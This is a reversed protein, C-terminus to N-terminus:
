KEFPFDVSYVNTLGVDLKIWFGFGPYIIQGFGPTAHIPVYHQPDRGTHDFTYVIDSTYSSLNATDNMPYYIGGFNPSFFINGVHFPTPFPNGVLLKQVFLKGGIGGGNDFKNVKRFETPRSVSHNTPAVKATVGRQLSTDISVNHDADTIIWYGKGPTMEDTTENMRIMSSSKGSFDGEQKYMVWNEAGTGEYDGLTPGFINQITSGPTLCSVSITKWQDKKLEWVINGCADFERYAMVPTNINYDYFDYRLGTNVAGDIDTYEKHPGLAPDNILTDDAWAIFGNIQSVASNDIPCNKTGNASSELLGEKCDTIGDADADKELYDPNADGDADPPTLGSAPSYATNRGQSDVAPPLASKVFTGLAQGEVNDPIGDNDSDLDFHNLIGDADTDVDGFFNIDGIEQLNHQTGTSGTFAVYALEDGLIDSIGGGYGSAINFTFSNSVERISYSLTQATANWSLNLTHWQGDKLTGSSNFNVVQSLAGKTGLGAGPSKESSWDEVSLRIQTHSDIAIAEEQPNGSGNHNVHTDFEIAVGNAIGPGAIGTEASGLAGMAGGRVGIANIGRPDNHFVIAFGDAGNIDNSARLQMTVDFNTRFDLRNKSNLAGVKDQADPTMTIRNPNAMNYEADGVKNFNKKLDSTDISREISDLIGDNDNDLDFHDFVGDHDNDNDPFTLTIKIEGIGVESEYHGDWPDNPNPILRIRADARRMAASIGPSAAHLGNHDIYGINEYTSGNWMQIYLKDRSNFPSLKLDLLEVTMNSAGEADFFRELYTSSNVTIGNKNKDFFLRDQSKAIYIKESGAVGNSVASGDDGIEIWPSTFNQTGDNQDYNYVTKKFNQSVTTTYGLVNTAFIGSLATIILFKNIKKRNMM